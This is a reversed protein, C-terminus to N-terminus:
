NNADIKLIRQYTEVSKHFEKTIRQIMAKLLLADIYEPDVKLAKEINELAVNYKMIKNFALALNNYVLKDNPNRKQAEEYKKIAEAFEGRKYLQNGEARAQKSKEPDRYEEDEREKKEKRAQKM